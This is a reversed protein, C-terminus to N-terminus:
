RFLAPSIDETAACKPCSLTILGGIGRPSDSNDQWWHWQHRCETCTVQASRPAGKVPPMPVSGGLTPDAHFNLEIRNLTFKGTEDQM